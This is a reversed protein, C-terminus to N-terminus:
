RLKDQKLQETDPASPALRPSPPAVVGRATPPLTNSFPCGAYCGFQREM